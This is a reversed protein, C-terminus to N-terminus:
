TSEGEDFTKIISDPFYREMQELFRRSKPVFPFHEDAFSRILAKVRNRNQESVDIKGVRALDLDQFLLLLKLSTPQLPVAYPALNHCSDCLAGGHFPSWWVLKTKDEKGCHACCTLVPAYGALKLMKMEFILTVIEADKGAEILDLAANLQRFLAPSAEGDEVLRDVLEAAYAAYATKEIDSRLSARSREIEGSNLTGMGSRRYFVFEGLTFLETVAALRSRAKKAGRAMVALKGAEETYLVVIKNGEGYDTTRIVVGRVKSLM